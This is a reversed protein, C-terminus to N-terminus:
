FYYYIFIPSFLIYNLFNVFWPGDCVLVCINVSQKFTESKNTMLFPTIFVYHFFGQSM